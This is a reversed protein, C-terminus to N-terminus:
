YSTPFTAVAVPKLLKQLWLEGMSPVAMNHIGFHGGLQEAQLFWL